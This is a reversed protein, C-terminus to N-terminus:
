GLYEVHRALRRPSQERLPNAGHNYPGFATAQRELLTRHFGGQHSQRSTVGSTGHDGRLGPCPPTPCPSPRRHRPSPARLLRPGSRHLPPQSRMWGHALSGRLRPLRRCPGSGRTLEDRGGPGADARAVVLPGPLPSAALCPSPVGPEPGGQHLCGMGTAAGLVGVQPRLVTSKGSAQTALLRHYGHGM